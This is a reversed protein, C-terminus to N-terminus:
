VSISDGNETEKEDKAPCMKRLEPLHLIKIEADHWPDGVGNYHPVYSSDYYPVWGYGPNASDKKCSKECIVRWEDESILVHPRCEACPMPCKMYFVIDNEDPLVTGSMKIQTCM